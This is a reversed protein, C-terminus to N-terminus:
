KGRTKIRKGKFFDKIQKEIYERSQYRTLKKRRQVAQFRRIPLEEEFDYIESWDCKTANQVMVSANSSHASSFWMEERDKTLIIQHIWYCNGNIDRRSNVHRLIVKIMKEGEQFFRRPDDQRDLFDLAPREVRESYNM